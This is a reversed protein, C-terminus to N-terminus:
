DVGLGPLESEVVLKALVEAKALAAEGFFGCRAADM